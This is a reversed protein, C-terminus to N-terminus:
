HSEAGNGYYPDHHGYYPYDYGFYPYGYWFPGGVFSDGGHRPFHAEQRQAFSHGGGFHGGGGGGGGRAFAAAPTLAIVGALVLGALSGGISKM